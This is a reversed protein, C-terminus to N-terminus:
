VGECYRRKIEEVIKTTSIDFKFPITLVKGGYSQVFDAGVINEVKWDGGKVLFDPKIAKILKLPTEEEFPVVYDVARLNSLLYARFELPVIPRKEGKIKRISSDSNIGVVLIDGLEKCRNLYHAHGAHLLDFCGNTFVIKKKGRLPQLEKLLEELSLVKGM